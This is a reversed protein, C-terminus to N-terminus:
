YYEEHAVLTVPIALFYYGQRLLLVDVNCVLFCLKKTFNSRLQVECEFFPSVQIDEEFDISDDM